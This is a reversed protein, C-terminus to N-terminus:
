WIHEVVMKTFIMNSGQDHYVRRVHYIATTDTPGKIKYNSKERNLEKAMAEIYECRNRDNVPAV